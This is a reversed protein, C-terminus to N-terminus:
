VVLANTKKSIVSPARTLSLTHPRSHFSSVWPDSCTDRISSGAIAALHARPSPVFFDHHVSIALDYPNLTLTRKVLTNKLILIQTIRKAIIFDSVLEVLLKVTIKFSNLFEFGEEWLVHYRPHNYLDLQLKPYRKNKEMDISWAILHRVTWCLLQTRMPQNIWNLHYFKLVWGLKNDNLQNINFFFKSLM